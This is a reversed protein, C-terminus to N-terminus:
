ANNLEKPPVKYIVAREYFKYNTYSLWHSRYGCRISDLKQKKGFLAETYEVM